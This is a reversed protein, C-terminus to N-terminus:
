LHHSCGSPSLLARPEVDSLAARIRPGHFFFFFGGGPVSGDDDQMARFRHWYVMVAFQKNLWAVALGQASAGLPLTKKPPSIILDEHGGNSIRFLSWLFM